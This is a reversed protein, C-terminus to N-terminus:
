FIRLSVLDILKLAHIDGELEKYFSSESQDVALPIGHERKVEDCIEPM